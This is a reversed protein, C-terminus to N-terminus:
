LSRCWRWWGCCCTGVLLSAFFAIANQGHQIQQNRINVLLHLCHFDFLLLRLFLVLTKDLVRRVLPSSVALGDCVLFPVLCVQLCVGQLHFLPVLVLCVQLCVGM